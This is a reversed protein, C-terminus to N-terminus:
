DNEKTGKESKAWGFFSFVGSLIFATGSIVPEPVSIGITTLAVAFATYTSPEDLNFKSIIAKINM